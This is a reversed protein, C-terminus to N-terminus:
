WQAGRRWIGYALLLYFAHAAVRLGNHASDEFHTLGLGPLLSWVWPQVQAPLLQLLPPAVQMWLLSVVLVGAFNRLLGSIWVMTLLSSLAVLVGHILERGSPISGFLGAAFLFSAAAVGGVALAKAAALQAPRMPTTFIWKETGVAPELTLLYPGLLAIVVLPTQLWPQVTASVEVREGALRDALFVVTPFLFGLAALALGQPNRKLKLLESCVM